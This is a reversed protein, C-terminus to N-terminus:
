PATLNCTASTLQRCDLSSGLGAVDGAVVHVVQMEVVQEHAACVVAPEGLDIPTDDLFQVEESQLPQVRAARHDRVDLM